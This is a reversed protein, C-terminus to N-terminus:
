QITEKIWIIRSIDKNQGLIKIDITEPRPPSLQPTLTLSLALTKGLCGILVCFQYQNVLWLVTNLWTVLWFWDIIWAHQRVYQHLTVRSRSVFMGTQNFLVVSQLWCLHYLRLCFLVSFIWASFKITSLPLHRWIM